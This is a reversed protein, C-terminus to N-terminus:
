IPKVTPQPKKTPVPKVTRAPKSSPQPPTTRQPKTTMKGKAPKRTRKPKATKPSAPRATKKPRTTAAPVQPLEPYVYPEPTPTPTKRPKPTAKRRQTRAPKPTDAPDTVFTQANIDTADYDTQTLEITNQRMHYDLRYVTGTSIEIYGTLEYSGDIHEQYKLKNAWDAEADICISEMQDCLEAYLDDDLYASFGELGSLDIEEEDPNSPEEPDDTDSPEETDEGKVIIKERLPDQAPKANKVARYGLLGGGTGLLALTLIVILIFLKGKGRDRAHWYLLRIKRFM